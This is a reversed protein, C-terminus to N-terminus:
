VLKENVQYYDDKACEWLVIVENVQSEDWWVCSKYPWISQKFCKILVDQYMNKRIVVKALTYLPEDKLEVLDYKLTNLGDYKIRDTAYYM